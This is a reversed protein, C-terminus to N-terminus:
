EHQTLVEDAECQAYAEAEQAFRAAANAFDVAERLYDNLKDVYDEVDDRYGDLEWDDCTHRGSWSFEQLCYPVDPRDFSGPANPASNYFSPESCFAAAETAAVAMLGALAYARM